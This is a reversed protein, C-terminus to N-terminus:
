DKKINKLSVNSNLKVLGKLSDEKLTNGSGLDDNVEESNVDGHQVEQQSLAFYILLLFITFIALALEVIM